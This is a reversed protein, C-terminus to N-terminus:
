YYEVPPLVLTPLPKLDRIVELQLITKTLVCASLVQIQRIVFLKYFYNFTKQASYM